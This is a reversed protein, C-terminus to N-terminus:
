FTVEGVIAREKQKKEKVDSSFKKRNEKKDKSKAIKNKDRQKDRPEMNTDKTKKAERWALFSDRLSSLSDDLSNDITKEGDAQDEMAARTILHMLLRDKKRDEISGKSADTLSSYGTRDDNELEMGRKKKFSGLSQDLSNDSLSFEISGDCDTASGRVERRRQRAITRKMLRLKTSIDEDSADLSARSGMEGTIIGDDDTGNRNNNFLALTQTGELHYKGGMYSPGQNQSESSTSGEDHRKNLGKYIVQFDQPGDFFFSSSKPIQKQHYGDDALDQRMFQSCGEELPGDEMPPSDGKGVSQSNIGAEDIIGSNRTHRIRRVQRGCHSLRISKTSGRQNIEFTIKADDGETRDIVIAYTWSGDSRRVWAADDIALKSVCNITENQTSIIMDEECGTDGMSYGPLVDPKKLLRVHSVWKDITVTKTSGKAASFTISVDDPLDSRCKVIAYTWKGTSRRIFACDSVHLKSVASITAKVMDDYRGVDGVSYGPFFEPEYREQDSHVKLKLLGRLWVGKAIHGDDYVMVGRGQPLGAENNTDTPATFVTGTYFGWDGNSDHCRIDNVNKNTSELSNLPQKTDEKNENSSHLSSNPETDGTQGQRLMLESNICLHNNAVDLARVQPLDGRRRRHESMSKRGVHEGFSENSTRASTMSLSLNRRHSRQIANNKNTRRDDNPIADAKSDVTSGGQTRDPNPRPSWKLNSTFSTHQRSMSKRGVHEDFPESSTIASTMSSSLNRRHSRQIASNKNIRRDDNPIADSKSNVISGGQTQDPNPRPSWKLNSTFSTHQRACDDSGMTARHRIMAHSARNKDIPSKGRPQDIMQANMRKPQLSNHRRRISSKTRVTCDPKRAKGLSSCKSCQGKVTLRDGTDFSQSRFKRTEDNRVSGCTRCRGDLAMVHLGDETKQLAGDCTPQNTNEPPSKGVRPYLSLRDGDTQKEVGNDGRLITYYPEFADDFHVELVRARVYIGAIPEALYFVDAGRKHRTTSGADRMVAGMGDMNLPMSSRLSNKVVNNHRGAVGSSHPSSPRGREDVTTRRRRRNLTQTRSTHMDDINM